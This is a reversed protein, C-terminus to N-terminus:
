PALAAQAVIAVAAAVVGRAAWRAAAAPSRRALAYGGIGGMGGLYLATVCRWTYPSQAAGIIGVPNAEPFLSLEACRVAAYGLAAAIWGAAVAVLLRASPSV